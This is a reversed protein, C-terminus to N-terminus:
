VESSVARREDELSNISPDALAAFCKPFIGIHGNCQGELWLDNVESLIELEDGERFELDEPGQATYGYQAVMRYLVPRGCSSESDKCWLTLKRDTVQQWMKRLDEDGSVPKLERSEPDRYRLQMTMQKKKLLHQLDSFNIDKSVEVEVTYACHVKLVISNNVGSSAADLSMQTHETYQHDVPLSNQLPVSVERTLDETSSFVGEQSSIVKIPKQSDDSSSPPPKPVDKTPDGHQLPIIREVACSTPPRSPPMKMPPLPIGNNVKWKDAKPPNIPELIGSPLLIKQGDHITSAWGDEKSLVFVVSTAKVAVDKTNEPYYHFLVRHYGADRGQVTDPCPEYFGPKQPRLPEFGIYEDNPIVSSIVKPKGLFDRSKLQEVEQKRPRFIEGQPVQLPELLLHNQVRELAIELSPKQRELKEIAQELTERALQWQALHCHVAATNYLVEWAYLIHRLGLQKYDIFANTRLHTIANRCDALAEEYMELQLHVVGRQFFGVALCPDKSITEYFAQLAGQLDGRLLCVSGKNFCIKSPPDRIGSFIKLALDWEKKDMAQVGEHWNQILDRYSM